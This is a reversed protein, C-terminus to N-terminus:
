FHFYHIRYRQNRKQKRWFMYIPQMHHKNFIFYQEIFYLKSKLLLCVSKLIKMELLLNLYVKNLYYLANFYSILIYSNFFLNNKARMQSKRNASCCIFVEQNVYYFQLSRKEIYCPKKCYHLLQYFRCVTSKITDPILKNSVVGTHM